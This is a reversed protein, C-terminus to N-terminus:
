FLPSVNSVNPSNANEITKGSGIARCPYLKSPNMKVWTGKVVGLNILMPKLYGQMTGNIQRNGAEPPWTTKVILKLKSLCNSSQEGVAALNTGSFDFM